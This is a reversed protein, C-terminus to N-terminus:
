SKKPPKAAQEDTLKKAQKERWKALRQARRNKLRRQAHPNQPM